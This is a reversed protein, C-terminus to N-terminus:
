VPYVNGIPLKVIGEITEFFPFVKATILMPDPAKASQVSKIVTVMGYVIFVM